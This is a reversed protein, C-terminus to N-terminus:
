DNVDNSLGQLEHPRLNNPSTGLVQPVLRQGSRLITRATQDCFCNLQLLAEFTAAPEFLNTSLLANLPGSCNSSVVAVLAAALQALLESQAIAAFRQLRQQLLVFAASSIISDAGGPAIGSSSCTSMPVINLM